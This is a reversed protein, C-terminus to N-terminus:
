NKQRRTWRAAACLPMRSRRSFGDTHPIHKRLKKIDDSIRKTIEPFYQTM